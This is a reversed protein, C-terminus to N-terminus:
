KIEKVKVIRVGIVFVVVTYIIYVVIPMYINNLVPKAIFKLGVNDLWYKSINIHLNTDVIGLVISIINSIFMNGIIAASNKELVFAITGYFVTYAIINFISYIFILPVSAEYGMGNKIFLVFFVLITIGYMCLLGILSAIYKSILLKVVSYGRGVINKATGETFDFTCFLTIFIMSVVSVENSLFDVVGPLVKTVPISKSTLEMIFLIIPSMLLSIALCVYFLKNHFINRVQLKILRKM